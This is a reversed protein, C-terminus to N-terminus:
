WSRCQDRAAYQSNPDDIHGHLRDLEDNFDKAIKDTVARVRDGQIKQGDAMTRVAVAGAQRLTSRLENKLIEAYKRVTRRNVDVHAMEHRMVVKYQCSGRPYERPVHVYHRQLGFSATVKTVQVCLVGQTPQGKFELRMGSQVDIETMGLVRFGERKLGHSGAMANIQRLSKTSSIRPGPDVVQVSVFPAGVLRCGQGRVQALGQAQALEQAQTPEAFGGIVFAAFVISVAIMRKMGSLM